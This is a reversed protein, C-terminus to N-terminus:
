CCHRYAESIMPASVCCGIVYQALCLPNLHTDYYQAANRSLRDRKEPNALLTEVADIIGKYSSADPLGYNKDMGCNGHVYHLGPALPEYWQVFPEADYVICAGTMLFVSIRFSVCLHDGPRAFVVKSAGHLSWFEKHSLRHPQCSVGVAALRKVLREKEAGKFCSDTLTVGLHKNCQLQSLTEYLRVQHEVINDCQEPTYHADGDPKWIRTLYIFDLSKEAKRLESMFTFLRPNLYGDGNMLPRIKHQQPYSMSPWHNHKFYIDCWKLANPDRVARGDSGDVAVHYSSNTERDLIM